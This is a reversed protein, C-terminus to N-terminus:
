DRRWILYADDLGGHTGTDWIQQQQRIETRDLHEAGDERINQEDEAAGKDCRPVLAALALELDGGGM